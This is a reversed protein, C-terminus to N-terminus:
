GFGKGTYGSWRSRPKGPQDKPMPMIVESVLTDFGDSTADVQDDHIGPTPFAELEEIYRANWPGRVLVVRGEREAQSSFPGFRQVKDGTVPKSFVRYGILLATLHDVQSKGAQGPDQPIRILTKRGDMDATEKIRREVEGPNGRFRVVDEIFIQAVTMSLLTGVTWDPDSKTDKKETGALDWSRVRILVERPSEDVFSVWSRQFYLGAAPKVLWDGDRLQARRVADLKNLEIAYEPDTDSLHPNDELRAPIFTRSLSGPVRERHYAESGDAKTEVWWVEGPQAPPAPQGDTGVRPELGEAEFDPDLWAGWHRFVWDHGEGGPNTTARILRPYDSKSSRVRACLAKYQKETFHTLEDFLLLNIEWGDYNAADKEHQLHRYHTVAGSPFTWKFHPSQVPSLGPYVKSFLDRSKGKLDDFQTTERRFVVTKCDPLHSYKVALATLAASKGGGAAGGYLIERCQSHYFETQPGPNPTWVSEIPPPKGQTKKQRAQRLRRNALRALV